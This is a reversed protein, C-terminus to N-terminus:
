TNKDFRSIEDPQEQQAKKHTHTHTHAAFSFFFNGCTPHKQKKKRKKNQKNRSPQLKQLHAQTKKHPAPDQTELQQV